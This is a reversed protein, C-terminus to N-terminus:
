PNCAFNLTVANGSGGVGLPTVITLSVRDNTEPDNAGTSVVTIGAELAQVANVSAMRTTPSTVECEGSGTARVETGYPPVNGFADTVFVVYSGPDMPDIGDTLFTGVSDEVRITLDSADRPGAVLEL